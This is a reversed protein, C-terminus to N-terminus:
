QRLSAALALPPNLTRLRVSDALKGYAPGHEGAVISQQMRGPPPRVRGATLSRIAQAPCLLCFGGEGELPSPPSSGALVLRRGDQATLLGGAGRDWGAEGLRQLAGEQPLPTSSEEVRDYAV